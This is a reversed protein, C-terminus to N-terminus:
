GAVFYASVNATIGDSGFFYLQGIPSSQKDKFGHVFVTVEKEILVVKLVEIVALRGFNLLFDKPSQSYNFVQVPNWFYIELMQLARVSKIFDSNM